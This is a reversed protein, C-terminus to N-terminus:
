GAMGSLYPSLTLGGQDTRDHGFRFISAKLAVVHSHSENHHFSL